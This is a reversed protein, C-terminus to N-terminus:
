LHLAPASDAIFYVHIDAALQRPHRGTSAVAGSLTYDTM